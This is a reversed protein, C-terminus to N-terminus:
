LAWIQSDKLIFSMRPSWDQVGIKVGQTGIGHVTKDMESNEACFWKKRNLFYLITVEQM